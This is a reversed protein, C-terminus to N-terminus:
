AYVKKQRDEYTCVYKTVTFVPLLSVGNVTVTKTFGINVFTDSYAFIQKCHYKERTELTDSYSLINTFTFLDIKYWNDMQVTHGM